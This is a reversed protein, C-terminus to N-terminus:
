EGATQPAPPDKPVCIQRAVLAIFLERAHAFGRREDWGMEEAVRRGAERLSHRGDFLNFAALNEPAKPFLAAVEGTAKSRSCVQGSRITVTYASSLMPRLEALQEDPLSGLDSLRVGERGRASEYSVIAEQLLARWFQRRSCTFRIRSHAAQGM